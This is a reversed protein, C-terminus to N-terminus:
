KTSERQQYYHRGGLHKMFAGRGSYYSCGEGQTNYAQHGGGDERFASWFEVSALREGIWDETVVPTDKGLSHRSVGEEVGEVHRPALM